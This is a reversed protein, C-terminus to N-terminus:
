YIETQVLIGEAMFVNKVTKILTFFFCIKNEKFMTKKIFVM